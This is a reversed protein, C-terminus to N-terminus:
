VSSTRIEAIAWNLAEIRTTPTLGHGVNFIHGPLSLTRAEDMLARVAARVQSEDGFSLLLPDLNGQLTPLLSSKQLFQAASSLSFRWDIALVEAGFEGATAYTHCGQGPYFIVPIQAEKLRKLLTQTAPAVLAKYDRTSFQGAWSDFLMVIEAGAEVQLCLYSFTAEMILDLLESFCGPDTYLLEKVASFSSSGQGEIMYCAVTAPAGAFGIMTQHDALQPRVLRIAAATSALLGTMKPPNLRRLASRDRIAPSLQPGEGPGFSLEQGLMHPIVLIDSFIIAGDLDFRKLPQLTVEAALRPNSCLELFSHEARLARYEPLYRGAQRLFWLPYRWPREGRASSLISKKSVVTM